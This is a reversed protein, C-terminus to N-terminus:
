TSKQKIYKLEKCDLKVEKVQTERLDLIERAERKVVIM